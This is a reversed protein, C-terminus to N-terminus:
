KQYDRKVRNMFLRQMQEYTLNLNALDSDRTDRYVMLYFKDMLQALKKQSEPSATNFVEKLREIDSSFLEMEFSAVGENQVNGTQIGCIDVSIM